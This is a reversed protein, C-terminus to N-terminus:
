FDISKKDLEKVAKNGFVESLDVGVADAIEKIFKIKDEMECDKQGTVEDFQKAAILLKKLEQVELKLAIFEARSIESLNPYTSPFKSRWDDGIMSVVCM